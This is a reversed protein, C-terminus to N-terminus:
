RRIEVAPPPIADLPLGFQGLLGRGAKRAGTRAPALRQRRVAKEILRDLLFLPKPPFVEQCGMHVAGEAAVETSLAVTYGDDLDKPQAERPKSVEVATHFM